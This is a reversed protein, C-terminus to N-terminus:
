PMIRLAIETPAPPTKSRQAVPDPMGDWVEWDDVERSFSGIPAEGDISPVSIYFMENTWVGTGFVDDVKLAGDYWFRSVGESFKIYFEYHHWQGDTQNPCELWNGMTMM